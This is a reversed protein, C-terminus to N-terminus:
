HNTKFEQCTLLSWLFDELHQKREAGETSALQQRWFTLEDERPSRSLARLYLEEIIEGNTKKATIRQALRGEPASVKRNLLPGNILHLQAALGRTTPASDCSEERSCRGLLDLGVSPIKPDPLLVARTGAPEDGYQDSIGTVDAIADALVEAGLPRALGRSYYRDDTASKAAAKKELTGRVPSRRAFAASNAIRRLTHRLDFGHEVFDRALRDLLEPHTAPNTARLDDVPEVLGRGMLAKWLRNVIARAFFPNDRATLWAALDSRSDAEANLFREGPLKPVAPLGTVPHTVEGLKKVRVVRSREMRAFIAALGHYDDQTWLDLPHNHCNACRMRASLFVESVFEAQDRANSTMRHFAAEGHEHSDGSSTLLTRAMADYPTGRELQARIWEGFARAVRDDNPLSRVRLLITLRHTWYDVFEKSTLLRDVLASRKSSDQSALFERVEAIPPLTGTLALRARRLFSADDTAPAPALRLTRLLDNVHDDVFNRRASTPIAVEKAGLPVTVRVPVVRSLYRAVVVAQGRRKMILKGTQPDSVTLTAPDSSTFVTWRTVDRKTGDDFTAVARLTVEEGVHSAVHHSPTVDFNTLQRLRRREAGGRIWDELLQTGPGSRGLRRKGGHKMRGTPKRILLSDEPHTPNIRRGEFQRVISHYDIDPNGGLLSLKFGGRGAAGGHCSGANCGAKTFVPVLDTDFDVADGASAALLAVLFFETMPVM